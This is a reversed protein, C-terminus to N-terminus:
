GELLSIMRKRTLAIERLTRIGQKTIYTHSRMKWKCQKMTFQSLSWKKYEIWMDLLLDSITNCSHWQDYYCWALWAIPDIEKNYVESLRMRIEEMRKIIPEMIGPNPLNDQKAYLWDMDFIGVTNNVKLSKWYAIFDPMQKNEITSVTNM